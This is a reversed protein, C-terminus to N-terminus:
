ARQVSTLSLLMQNQLSQKPRPFPHFVSTSKFVISSLGRCRYPGSMDQHATKFVAGQLFPVSFKQGPWKCILSAICYFCYLFKWVGMSKELGMLEVALM